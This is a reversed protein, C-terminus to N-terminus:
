DGTTITDHPFVLQQGNFSFAFEQAAQVHDVASLIFIGGPSCVGKRAEDRAM